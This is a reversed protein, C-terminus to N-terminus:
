PWLTYMAHPTHSPTLAPACLTLTHAPNLTILSLYSHPTCPPVSHGMHTLLGLNREFHTVILTLPLIRGSHTCGTFDVHVEDAQSGQSRHCTIAFGPYRSHIQTQTLSSNPLNPETLTVTAVLNAHYSATDWNTTWPGLPLIVGILTLSLSVSLSVSLSLTLTLTVVIPEEVKVREAKYLKGPDSDM